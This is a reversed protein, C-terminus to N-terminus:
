DPRELGAVLMRARVPPLPVSLVRGLGPPVLILFGVLAAFLGGSVGGVSGGSAGVGAPTPTEPGPPLPRPDPVFPSARKGRSPDSRIASAEDDLVAGGSWASSLVSFAADVDPSVVASSIVVISDGRAPEPATESVPDTAEVPPETPEPPAESVPDTAEVPPATPEPPAESVPDTAEVPAEAPAAPAEGVPAVVVEDDARAVGAYAGCVLAVALAVALREGKAPRRMEQEGPRGDHKGRKM